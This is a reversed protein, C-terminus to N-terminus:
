SLYSPPPNPLLPLAILSLDRELWINNHYCIQIIPFRKKQQWIPDETLVSSILNKFSYINVDSNLESKESYIEIKSDDIILEKNPEYNAISSNIMFLSYVLVIILYPIYSSFLGFLFM